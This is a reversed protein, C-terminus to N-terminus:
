RAMSAVLMGAAILAAGGVVLTFASMEFSRRYWPLAVVPAVVSETIARMIQAPVHAPTEAHRRRDTEEGIRRWFEIHRVADGRMSSPEPAEGDLWRNILDTTTNGALPVERDALPANSESGRRPRDQDDDRRNLDNRM